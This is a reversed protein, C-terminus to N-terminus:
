IYMSRRMKVAFQCQVGALSPWFRMSLLYFLAVTSLLAFGRVMGVIRLLDPQEGKNKAVNM